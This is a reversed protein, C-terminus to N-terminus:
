KNATISARQVQGGSDANWYYSDVAGGVRCAVAWETSGANHQATRRAKGGVGAPRSRIFAQQFNSGILDNGRGPLQDPTATALQAAIARRKRTGSPNAKAANKRQSALGVAFDISM